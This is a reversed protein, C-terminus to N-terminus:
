KVANYHHRWARGTAPTCGARPLEATWARGCHQQFPIAVISVMLVQEYYPDEAISCLDAFFLPQLRALMLSCCPKPLPEPNPHSVKFTFASRAM